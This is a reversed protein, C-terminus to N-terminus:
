ESRSYTINEEISGAFLQTEQTVVGFYSRLKVPRLAKFDVGDITLRGDVPDYLRLLLSVITSKGSGSRGVLATTQGPAVLLSVRDLIPRESRKQTYHFVVDELRLAGESSM